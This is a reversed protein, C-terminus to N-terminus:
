GHADRNGTLGRGDSQHRMTRDSGTEQGAKM